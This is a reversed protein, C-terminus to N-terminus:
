PGRRYRRSSPRRARADRARGHRAPFTATRSGRASGTTASWATRAALEEYFGRAPQRGVGRRPALGVRRRVRPATGRRRRTRSGGGTSSASASTRSWPGGTHHGTRAMDVLHGAAPFCSRRAANVMKAHVRAEDVPERDPRQSVAVGGRHRATRAARSANAPAGTRRRSAGARPTLECGEGTDVVVVVHEDAVDVSIRLRRSRAARGRRRRDASIAKSTASVCWLRPIPEVRARSSAASARAAPIVRARRSPRHRCGSSGRAGGAGRSGRTSTARRRAHARRRGRASVGLASCGGAASYDPPTSSFTPM